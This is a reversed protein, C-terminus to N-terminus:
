LMNLPGVPSVMEHRIKFRFYFNLMATSFNLSNSSCVLGGIKQQMLIYFSPPVGKLCVGKIETMEKKTTLPHKM